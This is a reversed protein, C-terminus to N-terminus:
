SIRARFVSRIPLTVRRRRYKLFGREGLARQIAQRRQCEPRMIVGRQSAALEFEAALIAEQMEVEALFAARMADTIDSRSREGCPELSLHRNALLRAEELDESQWRGPRNARAAQYATRIKMAGNAAECSGNYEPTYGPSVLPVVGWRLLLDKTIAGTFAGHQDHKLVLPAGRLRFLADLYAATEEDSVSGVGHWLIQESSGLDRLSIVASFIGDVPELPDVHDVAWVAGAVTWELQDILLRSRSLHVRRYRDLIDRLESRPVEPFSERLPRVGVAPGEERIFLLIGQRVDLPSRRLPRGRPLPDLEGREGRSVWECLTRVSIGLEEASARLTERRRETRRRRYYDAAQKRARCEAERRPRQAARSRRSSPPESFRARCAAELLLLHRNEDDDSATDRM